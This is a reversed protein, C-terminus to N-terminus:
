QEPSILLTPRPHQLDFVSNSKQNLVKQLPMTLINLRQACQIHYYKKRKGNSVIQEDPNFKMGCCRCRGNQKLEITQTVRGPGKSIYFLRSPLLYESIM